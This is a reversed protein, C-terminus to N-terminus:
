LVESEEEEDDIPEEDLMEDDEDILDGICVDGDEDVVADGSEMPAFEDGLSVYVSAGQPLKALETILEAITM